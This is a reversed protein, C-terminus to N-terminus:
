IWIKMNNYCDFYIITNDNLAYTYGSINTNENASISTSSDIVSIMSMALTASLCYAIM